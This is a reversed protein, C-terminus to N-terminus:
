GLEACLDRARGSTSVLTWNGQADVTYVVRGTYLTTTPGAPVDTPFLIIVHSGMSEVRTAGGPLATYRDAVGKSPLTISSGTSVNTLTLNGGLGTTMFTPNDHIKVSAGTSSTALPFSCAMGAPFFLEDAAHAPAAVVGVTALAVTAICLTRIRATIM